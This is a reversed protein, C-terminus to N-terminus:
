EAAKLIDQQKKQEEVLISAEQAAERREQCLLEKELQERAQKADAALKKQRQKEIKRAKFEKDVGMVIALVDEFHRQGLIWRANVKKELAILSRIELNSALSTLFRDPAIAESTFSSPSYHTM